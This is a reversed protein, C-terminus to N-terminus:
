GNEDLDVALVREEEVEARADRGHGPVAYEGVPEPAMGEHGMEM